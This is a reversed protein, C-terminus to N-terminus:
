GTKISILLVLAGERQTAGERQACWLPYMHPPPVEDPYGPAYMAGDKTQQALWRRTLEDLGRWQQAFCRQLMPFSDM